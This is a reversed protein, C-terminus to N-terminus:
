NPAPFISRSISGSAARSCSSALCGSSPTAGSLYDVRTRIAAVATESFVEALPRQLVATHAAGLYDAVNDSAIIITFDSLLTLLFGFQQVSGPIHIPERDCNTLDVPQNM